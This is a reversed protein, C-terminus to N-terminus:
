NKDNDIGNTLANEKRAVKLIEDCINGFLTLQKALVEDTIGNADEGLIERARKITM